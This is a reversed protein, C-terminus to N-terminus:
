RKYRRSIKMKSNWSDPLGGFNVIICLVVQFTAIHIVGPSTLSVPPFSIDPIILGSPNSDISFNLFFDNMLNLVMNKWYIETNM